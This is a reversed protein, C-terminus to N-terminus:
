SSKLNRTKISKCRYKKKVRQFAQRIAEYDERNKTCIDKVSMGMEEAERYIEVARRQTAPLDALLIELDIRSEIQRVQNEGRINPLTDRLKINDTVLTELSIERERGYAGASGTGLVKLALLRSILWRLFVLMKQEDALILFIQRFVKVFAVPAPFQLLEAVKVSDLGLKRWIFSNLNVRLGSSFINRYLVYEFIVSAVENPYNKEGGIEHLLHKKHRPDITENIPFLHLLAEPKKALENVERIIQEEVERISTTVEPCEDCALNEFENQCQRLIGQFVKHLHRSRNTVRGM